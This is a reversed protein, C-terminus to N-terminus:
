TTAERHYKIAWMTHIMEVDTLNHNHYISFINGTSFDTSKYSQWYNFKMYLLGDVHLLWISCVHHSMECIISCVGSSIASKMALTQQLYQRHTIVLLRIVFGSFWVVEAYGYTLTRCCCLMTHHLAICPAVIM